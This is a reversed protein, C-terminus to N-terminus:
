DPRNAGGIPRNLRELQEEQELRTFLEITWGIREDIDWWAMKSPVLPSAEVVPQREVADVLFRTAQLPPAAHTRDSLMAAQLAAGLLRVKRRSPVVARREISDLGQREVERGIEAYILRAAHIGPRCDFPLLAIGGTSRQYLGDAEDLLRKLVGALRDDFVPTVLWTDPDLGAERMWVLPLYLRGARADEGVDRAINTLQMAVGLDAARALAESSRVGMMLTTIVGVTSAVRAAYACLDSFDEFRRGEADWALGELLADLLARPIAVKRVVASLAREVPDDAPYGAYVRDLQASLQELADDRRGPLDVADDALRCFAYLTTAPERVRRPLLKAALHFSKSGQRLMARCADLDAPTPMSSAIAAPSTTVDAVEPSNPSPDAAPPPDPLLNGARSSM